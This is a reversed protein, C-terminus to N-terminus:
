AEDALRLKLPPDDISLPKRRPWVYIENKSAPNAPCDACLDKELWPRPRTWCVISKLVWGDLRFEPRQTEGVEKAGLKQFIWAAEPNSTIATISAPQRSQLNYAVDVTRRTLETGIKARRAEYGEMVVLGRLEYALVTRPLMNYFERDDSTISTLAAAGIPRGKDRAIAISDARIYWWERSMPAMGPLTRLLRSWWPFIDSPMWSIAEDRWKRLASPLDNRRGIQSLLHAYPDQQRKPGDAALAPDYNALKLYADDSPPQLPNIHTEYTIKM